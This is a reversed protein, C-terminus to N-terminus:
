VCNKTVEVINNRHHVPIFVVDVLVDQVIQTCGTGTVARTCAKLPSDRWLSNLVRNSAVHVSVDLATLTRCRICMEDTFVSGGQELTM